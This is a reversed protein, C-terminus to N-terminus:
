GELDKVVEMIIEESIIEAQRGFGTLLAMDCIQNIRRPIGGSQEYIIKIASDDFCNKTAGAVKLRHQM